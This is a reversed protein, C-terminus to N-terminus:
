KIKGMEASVSQFAKGLAPYQQFKQGAAMLKSMLAQLRPKFKKELAKQEEASQKPLAKVQEALEKARDSLDELADSAEEASESDTVKDIVVVMDELISLSEEAADEHNDISGGCATCVFAALVAATVRIKM